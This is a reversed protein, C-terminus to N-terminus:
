NINILENFNNISSHVNINSWKQKQGYGYNVKIFKLKNQMAAAGDNETDGVFYADSFQPNNKIYFTVLENKNKVAEKKEDACGVWHFYENWGYHDILKQTAERRKNTAIALKDGRRILKKLTELVGGYPKTKLLLNEDYEKKFLTIFQKYKNSNESGLILKTTEQLTPGILIGEINKLSSPAIVKTVKIYCQRIPSESDVLTGDFDFIWYKGL